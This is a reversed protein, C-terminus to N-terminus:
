HNGSFEMLLTNTSVLDGSKVYIQKIATEYPAYLVHEMKMAELIVLKDGKTVLQNPKPFISVVTGTMPAVLQTQQNILDLSTFDQSLSVLINHSQWFVMLKNGLPKVTGQLPSFAELNHWEETDCQFLVTSSQFRVLIRFHKQNFNLTVTQQNSTGNLTWGQTTHGPLLYNLVLAQIALEDVKLLNKQNEIWRTTIKGEVFDKHQLIRYLLGTNTTVGMIETDLLAQQLQLTATKRAASHSVVKAILPDYYVSIEDGTQLATDVRVNTPFQLHSIKGVSPLFNQYPDEAYIRVEIAHGTSTIDKQSVPLPEGAAVKLQWEVLDFGTVMETVAHEVQLRTNMEIFYFDNGDVLFEITGAGVYNIAKACTAATDWLEQKLKPPLNLAPTEEIIKQHRRQTSCDREFLHVCNGFTDAFIQVEIHRAVPLYKELLVESSGFAAKAERKATSLADEFHAPDTVVHMGKGGGGATPKILVPFSIAEPKFHPLVPVAAAQMLTRAESKKGMQSVVKSSPGVFIIDNNECAKAFDANESLFGYGPHIADVKSKKAATMIKAINLYSEAPTSPGLYYSEDALKVHAANRDTESYLAICQIGLRKATRIIRCAIEGRNAILLRKFM